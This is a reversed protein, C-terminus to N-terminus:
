LANSNQDARLRVEIRFCQFVLDDFVFIMAKVYVSTQTLKRVDYNSSYSSEIFFNCNSLLTGRSWLAVM